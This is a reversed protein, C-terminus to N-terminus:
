STSAFRRYRVDTGVLLLETTQWASSWARSLSLVRYKEDTSGLDQDPSLRQGVRAQYYSSCGLPPPVGHPWAAGVPHPSSDQPSLSGLLSM